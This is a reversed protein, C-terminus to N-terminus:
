VPCLNLIPSDIVATCHPETVRQDLLEASPLGSKTEGVRTYCHCINAMADKSLVGWHRHGLSLPPEPLNEITLGFFWV